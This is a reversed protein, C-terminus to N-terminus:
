KGFILWGIGVVIGLGIAAVPLWSTEGSTAGYPAVTFTGAPGSFIVTPQLEAVVQQMATPQSPGGATIPFVLPPTIATRVEIQNFALGILGAEDFSGDGRLINPNQGQTQLYAQVAPVLAPPVVQM